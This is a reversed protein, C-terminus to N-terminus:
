IIKIKQDPFFYLYIYRNANYSREKIRHNSLKPIMKKRNLRLVIYYYLKKGM